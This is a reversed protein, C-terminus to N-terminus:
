GSTERRGKSAWKRSWLSLAIMILAGMLIAVGLRYGLFLERRTELRQSLDDNEFRRQRRGFPAFSLREGVSKVIRSLPSRAITILRGM